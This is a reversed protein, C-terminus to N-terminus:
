GKRLKVGAEGGDEAIFEVGAAELAFRIAALNQHVPLSGGEFGKVTSLGVKASEALKAQSLDLLGRAARCQALTLNMLPILNALVRLPIKASNGCNQSLLPLSLQIPPTPLESRPGPRHRPVPRERNSGSFSAAPFHSEPLFSLHLRPTDIGPPSGAVPERASATVAGM